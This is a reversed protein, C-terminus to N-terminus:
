SAMESKFRIMRLRFRERSIIVAKAFEQKHEESPNVAHWGYFKIGGDLANRVEPRNIYVKYPKDSREITITSKPELSEEVLRSFDEMHLSGCFSCVRDGNAHQLWRDLGEIKEDPLIHSM